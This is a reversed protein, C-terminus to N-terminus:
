ANAIDLLGGQGNNPNENLAITNNLHIINDTGYRSYFRKFLPNTTINKNKLAKEITSKNIEEGFSKTIGQEQLMERLATLDGYQENAFTSSMSKDYHEVGKNETDRARKVFEDIENKNLGFSVDTNAGSQKDYYKSNYVDSAGTGKAKATGKTELVNGQKDRLYPDYAISHGIEHALTPSDIYLNSTIVNEYPKYVTSADSSINAQVNSLQKSRLNRKQKAIDEQFDALNVQGTNNYQEPYNGQRAAYLPSNVYDAINKQLFSVGEKTAVDEIANTIYNKHYENLKVDSPYKGLKKEIEQVYSGKVGTLNEYAKKEASIKEQEISSYDSMQTDENPVEYEQRKPVEYEQRKVEAAERAKLEAQYKADDEAFKSEEDSTPEPKTVEEQTNVIPIAVKAPVKKATKKPDPVPDPIIYPEAKILGSTARGELMDSQIQMADPTTDFSYNYGVKYNSQKNLGAIDALSKM